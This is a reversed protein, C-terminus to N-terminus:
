AEDGTPAPITRRPRETMTPVRRVAAQRVPASWHEVTRAPPWALFQTARAAPMLRLAAGAAEAQGRAARRRPRCSPDVPVFAAGLARVRGALVTDSGPPIEHSSAVPGFPGAWPPASRVRGCPSGPPGSAM